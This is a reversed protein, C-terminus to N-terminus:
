RADKTGGEKLTRIREQLVYAINGYARIEGGYFNKQMDSNTLEIGIQAKGREENCFVLIENYIALKVYKIILCVIKYM